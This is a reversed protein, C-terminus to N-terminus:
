GELCITFKRHRPIYVYSSETPIHVLQVRTGIDRNRQTDTAHTNPEEFISENNYLYDIENM